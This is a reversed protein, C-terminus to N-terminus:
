SHDGGPYMMKYNFFFVVVQMIMNQDNYFYNINRTKVFSHMMTMSSSTM